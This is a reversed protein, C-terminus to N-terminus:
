DLLCLDPQPNEVVTTTSVTSEAFVCALGDLRRPSAYRESHVERIHEIELAAFSM